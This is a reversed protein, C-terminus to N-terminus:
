YVPLRMLRMWEAMLYGVYILVSLSTLGIFAWLGRFQLPASSTAKSGTSHRGHQRATKRKTANTEEPAFSLQSQPAIHELRERVPMRDFDPYTKFLQSKDQLFIWRGSGACVEADNSIEFSLWRKILEDASLVRTIQGSPDRALFPSKEFVPSKGKLFPETKESAVSVVVTVNDPAGAQMARKILREPAKGIPGSVLAQLIDRDSVFGHLGDSCTLYVDGEEVKKCYLDAKLNAVVGMGRTLRSKQRETLPGEPVDRGAIFIGRELFTEVNHDITLQWLAFRQRGDAKSYARCLYTRSDGAHGIAIHGGAFHLYNVTAGMGRLNEDEHSLKHIDSNIRQLTEDLHASVDEINIHTKSEFADRLGDITLQSAREGGKHGGMGDSVIAVGWEANCFYADQNSARVLGRDTAGFMRLRM